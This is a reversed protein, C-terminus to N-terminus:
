VIVSHSVSLSITGSISACETYRVAVNCDRNPFSGSGPHFPAPDWSCRSVRNGDGSSRKFGSVSLFHVHHHNIGTWKEAAVVHRCLLAILRIILRSKRTQTVYVVDYLMVIAITVIETCHCRACFSWFM